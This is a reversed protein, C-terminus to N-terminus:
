NIPPFRQIAMTLSIILVIASAIIILYRRNVKLYQLLVHIVLLIIAVVLIQGAELGLNFSLLSTGLSQDKALIFKLSEAFGFGHILGFILALIYNVNM